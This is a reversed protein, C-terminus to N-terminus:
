SIRKLHNYVGTTIISVLAELHGHKANIDYSYTLTEHQKPPSLKDHKKVALMFKAYALKIPAHNPIPKIFTRIVSEYELFVNTTLEHLSYANSNIVACRNPDDYGYRGITFRADVYRAVANLLSLYRHNKQSGEFREFALYYREPMYPTEVPKITYIPSLTM